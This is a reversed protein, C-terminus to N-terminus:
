TTHLLMGCSWFHNFDHCLFSVLNTHHMFDYEVRPYGQKVVSSKRDWIETTPVWCWVIIQNDGIVNCRSTFTCLWIVLLKPWRMRMAMIAMNYSNLLQTTCRCSHFMVFGVPFLGLVLFVVWWLYLMWM